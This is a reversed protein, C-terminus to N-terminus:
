DSSDAGSTLCAESVLRDFSSVGPNKVFLCPKGSRKCQAKVRWYANHSICGAQCIVLDAATLVANIRHPSEEQGGDHHLFRGGREEVVQRYSDIAGSRGGVCLVCKGALSAPTPAPQQMEIARAPARELALRLRDLETELDAHSAQLDAFRSEALEARWAITHRDSQSVNNNQRSHLQQTLRVIEADRGALAGRLAEIEGQLARSEHTRAARQRQADARAAELARTLQRHEAQLKDLAIARQHEGHALRLQVMHIDGHIAQELLADCAPHTWSAWLAGPIQTGERLAAVWLSKLADHDRADAFARIQAAHRQDLQKQILEALSSRSGCAEAVMIHLVFDSSMTACSLAKGVLRRLEDSTFCAGILPWHFDAPLAWLKRRRSGAPSDSPIASDLSVSHDLRASFSAAPDPFARAVATQAFPLPPPLDPSGTSLEFPTKM